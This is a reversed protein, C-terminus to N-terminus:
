PVPLTKCPADAGLTAPQNPKNNRSTCAGKIVATRRQKGKTGKENRKSQRAKSAQQSAQQSAQHSTSAPQSAQKSRNTVETECM